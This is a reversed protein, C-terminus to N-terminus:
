HHAGLQNILQPLVEEAKGLLWHDVPVDDDAELDLGWFISQNKESFYLASETIGVSFSTGIAILLDAEVFNKIAKEYEYDIHGDYYEDFWLIHPRVISDCSPCRPITERTPNKTFTDFDLLSNEIKGQPAAYSCKSNICRSYRYKGHIEIIKKSGALHHLGDVNQTVLQFHKKEQTCWDELTKLAHHTPNPEKGEIVAFRKLYWSLSDVPHHKFYHWTGKETINKEWVADHSKRFPPIGSAVSIGAGTIVVINKAKQLDKALKDIQELNLQSDCISM